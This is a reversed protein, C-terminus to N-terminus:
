VVSKRDGKRVEKASSPQETKVPKEAVEMSETM